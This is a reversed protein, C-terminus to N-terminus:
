EGAARYWAGSVRGSEDFFVVLIQSAAPKDIDPLVNFAIEEDYEWMRAYDKLAQLVDDRKMGIAIGCLAYDDGGRLDILSVTGDGRLSLDEGEYNDRYEEGSAYTLGGIAEAARAIDQGFYDKLEMAEALAQGATLLALAMLAALARKMM